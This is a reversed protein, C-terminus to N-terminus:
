EWAPMEINCVSYRWARELMGINCVSFRSPRSWRTDLIVHAVNFLQMPLAQLPALSDSTVVKAICADAYTCAKNLWISM